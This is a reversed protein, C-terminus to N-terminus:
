DEKIQEIEEEKFGRSYLKQKIRYELDSGSYKKELKKKEKQYERKLVDINSFTYKSIQQMTLEKTYGLHVIYTAIKLELVKGADKHNSKVKKQIIKNINTIYVDDDINNLINKIDKDLFGLKLLDTQIKRPGEMKLYVHDHIYAQLYSIDDILRANKLKLVFEQYYKEDIGFSKFYEIVELETMRKRKLKKLIKYYEDLYKDYSLIEELRSEDLEKKLLLDYKLITDDYLCIEDNLTILLYQNNNKKKLKVIKM